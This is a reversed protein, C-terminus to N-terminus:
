EEVYKITTKNGITSVVLIKNMKELIPSNILTSLAQEKSGELVLSKIEKGNVIAENEDKTTLENPFENLVHHQKDYYLITQSNKILNMEKKNSKVAYLSSLPNSRQESVVCPTSQNALHFLFVISAIFICTCVMGKIANCSNAIGDKNIKLIIKSEVVFSLVIIMLTIIMLAPYVRTGYEFKDWLSFHPVKSVIDVMQSIM